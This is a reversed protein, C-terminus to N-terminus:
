ALRVNGCFHTELGLEAMMAAKIRCARHARKEDPAYVVQIHNAKHRAMLQDRSVGDLTAHM